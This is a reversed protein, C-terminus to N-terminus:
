DSWRVDGSSLAATFESIAAVVHPPLDPDTAQWSGSCGACSLTTAGEIIPQTSTEGVMTAGAAHVVLTVVATLTLTQAGCACTPETGPLSGTSAAALKELVAGVHIGVPPLDRTVTTEGCAECTLSEVPLDRLSPGILQIATASTTLALPM